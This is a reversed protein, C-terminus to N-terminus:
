YIVFWWFTRILCYIWGSGLIRGVWAFWVKGIRGNRGHNGDWVLGVMFGLLAM